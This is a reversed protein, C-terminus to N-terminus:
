PLNSPLRTYDFFAFGSHDERHKLAFRTGILHEYPPFFVDGEADRDLLTLYLADAMELTEAYVTAGGIVFVTDTTRIAELADALAPFTEVGALSTHSLVVNRRGPLPRGISEFTRRGMLVAHGMTLSKFRKLDDPLYWPLTGDKGIVRNHALAAILALTV